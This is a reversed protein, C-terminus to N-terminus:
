DKAVKWLHEFYKRYSDAVSKSEIIIVFIKEDFVNISVKNGFIMTSSPTAEGIYKIQFNKLKTFLKGRLNEETIIRGIIKAKKTDKGVRPMEYKLIEYSKGTGGYVCIDKSESEFLMRVVSRLGEKGELIKVVSPEKKIQELKLLKPLISKILIEKKQVQNLLNNPSTARFLKKNKKIIYSALGKNILNNILNYTHTRDMNLLKALEGGSIPSNKLLSLYVESEKNSLGVEKLREKLEEM